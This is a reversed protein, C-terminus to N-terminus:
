GQVVVEATRELRASNGIMAVSAPGSMAVDVTVRVVIRDGPAFTLSPTTSTCGTYTTLAGTSADKKAVTVAYGAETALSENQQRVRDLINRDGNCGSDVATPDLQAVSAGERVANSMRNLYSATRGLDISSFIMVVLIPMVLALEVLAV